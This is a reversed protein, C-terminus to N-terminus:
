VVGGVFWLTRAAFREPLLATQFRLTRGSVLGGLRWRLHAKGGFTLKEVFHAKGRLSSKWSTLIM